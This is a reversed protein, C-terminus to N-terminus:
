GSSSYIESTGLITAMSQRPYGLLKKAVQLLTIGMNGFVKQYQIMAQIQQILAFGAFQITRELFDPREELIHPFTTLYAQILAAMSPQIKELPIVALRLSEEIGLSKNIILSSLWMLLYSAIIMGLDYAPDGWNARELDIFRIIEESSVSWNNHLLINNLKLDNHTLCSPVFAQGLENISKGLSDYKQYLAFFKLGDAPVVGFIEPTIRELEAILNLIQYESLNNKQQLLFDQYVQCQFTDRHIRGLATGIASAILLPFTKEKQYFNSLDQYDELYRLVLISNNADFHLIEPLFTQLYALQPFQSILSQIRWEGVFEGMAEGDRYYREQKVLLKSNDSLTVLLNFNKAEILEFNSLHTESPNLLGQECLYDFINSSSLLFVM